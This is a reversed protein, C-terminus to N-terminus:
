CRGAYLTLVVAWWCTWPFAQGAARADVAAASSAAPREIESFIRECIRAQGLAGAVGLVADEYRCVASARQAFDGSM